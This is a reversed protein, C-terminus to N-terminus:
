ERIRLCDKLVPDLTTRVNTFSTTSLFVHIQKHSRNYIGLIWPLQDAYQVLKNFFFLEKLGLRFHFEKLGLTFYSEQFVFKM